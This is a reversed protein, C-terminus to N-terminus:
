NLRRTMRALEQAKPINVIVGRQLQPPMPDGEPRIGYQVIFVQSGRRFAINTGYNVFNGKAGSWWALTGRGIRAAPLAKVWVRDVDCGASCYQRVPGPCDRVYDRVGKLGQRGELASPYNLVEVSAKRMWESTSSGWYNYIRGSGAQTYAFGSCRGPVMRTKSAWQSGWSPTRHWSGGLAASLQGPDPLDVIATPAAMLFVLDIM